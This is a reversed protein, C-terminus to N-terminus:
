SVSKNRLERESDVWYKSSPAECVVGRPDVTTYLVIRPLKQSHCQHRISYTNFVSLQSILVQLGRSTGAPVFQPVHPISSTPPNQGGYKLAPLPM